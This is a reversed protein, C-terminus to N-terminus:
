CQQEAATLRRYEQLKGAFLDCKTNSVQSLFTVTSICFNVFFIEEFFSTSIWGKLLRGSM